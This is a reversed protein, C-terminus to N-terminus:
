RQTLLYFILAGIGLGIMGAIMARQEQDNQVRGAVNHLARLVEEQLGTPENGGPVDRGIEWRGVTNPGVNLAKALERQSLGFTERIFLVQEPRM